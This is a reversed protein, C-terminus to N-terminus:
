NISKINIKKEQIVIMNKPIIGKVVTGAGIVCNDGIITGRLIISNAGIWVNKGIIVPKTKYDSINKEGFTHDHDYICVNPGITVFDGIVILEKSVINCNRNIYVKNGICVKGGSSRILTGNDFMCKKGLEIIGNVGVRIMATPAILEVKSFKIKGMNFFSLIPMRILNYMIRFVWEAKRWM